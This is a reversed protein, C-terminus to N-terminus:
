TPRTTTSSLPGMAKKLGMAEGGELWCGVCLCLGINPSDAMEIAVSRTLSTESIRGLTPMELPHDPGLKSGWRPFEAKLRALVDLRTELEIDHRQGYAFGITEVSDFTELAQALCVTSDQGGSFLVLASTAPM